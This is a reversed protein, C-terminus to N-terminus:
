DSVSQVVFVRGLREGRLRAAVSHAQVRSACLAFYATGSGSMRAGVAGSERCARQLRVIWESLEAAPEELRNYLLEGIRPVDGEGVASVFEEVRRPSPNPRCKKYVAATSLGEPPRVIVFHWGLGGPVRELKEGRGRAVGVGSGLFFPIDSGLEAAHEALRDPSLNLQWIENAAVIAAAADSSGGALGSAAPIRKILTATAGQKVNYKTRISELARWVLNEREPPLVEEAPPDGPITHVLCTLRVTPDDSPSVDLQDYLDVPVMLTEIEHFGDPRKALIELFLNLKAPALIRVGWETREVIM